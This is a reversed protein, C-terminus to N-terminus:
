VAFMKSVTPHRHIIKSNKFNSLHISPKIMFPGSLANRPYWIIPLQLANKTQYKVGVHHILNIMKKERAKYPYTGVFFKSNLKYVLYSYNLYRLSLAGLVTNRSQTTEKIHM